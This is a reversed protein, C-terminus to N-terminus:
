QRKSPHDSADKVDEHVPVIFDRLIDRPKMTKMMTPRSSYIAVMVIDFFGSINERDFNSKIIETKCFRDSFKKEIYLNENFM